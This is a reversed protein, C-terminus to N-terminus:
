WSSRRRHMRPTASSAILDSALIAWAWWPVIPLASGVDQRFPRTLNIATSVMSKDKRPINRWSCRCPAGTVSNPQAGGAGNIRTPMTRAPPVNSLPEADRVWGVTPHWLISRTDHLVLLRWTLPSSPASQESPEGQRPVIHDNRLGAFRDETQRSLTTSGLM